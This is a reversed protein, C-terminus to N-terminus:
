PVLYWGHIVPGLVFCFLLHCSHATSVGQLFIMKLEGDVRGVLRLGVVGM